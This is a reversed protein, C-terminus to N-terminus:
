KDGPHPLPDPIDALHPGIWREFKKQSQILWHDNDELSHICWRQGSYWRLQALKIGDVLDVVTAVLQTRVDEIVVGYRHQALPDVRSPPVTVDSESLGGFRHIELPYELPRPEPDTEDFGRAFGEKIAAEQRSQRRVEAPELLKLTKRVRLMALHWVLEKREEPTLNYESFFEDFSDALREWPKM